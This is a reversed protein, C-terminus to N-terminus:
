QAFVKAFFEKMDAWSKKDAAKNYALPINFKKGIATSAPNTFSHIAGPYNIFTYAAKASDLGWRFQKIVPEPNFKDAAGNCVLIKAKVGSGSPAPVGGLGAHFSVVGKLDEGASAMSLVVGGGYCYGIAGIQAPDVHKEKKLAEVAADFRAKLTEPNKMSEGSLKGAEAPTSVVTGNGYMDAAFAVYGLRALMEARHRPYDNNGWWEHVVIIGPRKGKFTNDFAVYGKLTTGGASYEVRTGIVKAEMLSTAVLLLMVITLRM